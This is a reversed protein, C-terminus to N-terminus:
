PLVTEFRLVVGAAPSVVRSVEAPGDATRFVRLIDWVPGASRLELASREATSPLRTQAEEVVGCVVLGVSYLEAITGGPWPQRGPDAVPTGRVLHLPIVSEQLQVPVGTVYKVLRRRLVPLGPEVGLPEADDASAEDEVYEATVWYDDWGIGYDETFASVAPHEGGARLRALEAAYRSTAMHRVPPPVAVRTPTGSRKVVLGEGVLIRMADQIVTRSVKAMECLKPESPLDENPVCDGRKIAGRIADAVQKHLPTDVYHDVPLAQPDLPMGAIRACCGGDCASRVGVQQGM